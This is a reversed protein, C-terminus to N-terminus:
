QGLLGYLSRFGKLDTGIRTDTLEFEKDQREVVM